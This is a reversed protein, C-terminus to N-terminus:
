QLVLDNLLFIGVTFVVGIIFFGPKGKKGLPILDRIVGFLVVGLAFAYIIFFALDNFVLFIGVVVGLIPTLFSIIRFAKEPKDSLDEMIQEASFGITFARIIFPIMIIFAVELSSEHFVLAVLIGIMLGHTVLANAEFVANYEPVICDIETIDKEYEAKNDLTQEEVIDEHHTHLKLPTVPFGKLIRKYIIKEVLAIIVFGTLLPIFIAIYVYKSDIGNAQLIDIGVFLQPVLELFLIGVMLGAGLSELHFHWKRMNKSIREGLFHILTLGLVVAIPVIYDWASMMCRSM